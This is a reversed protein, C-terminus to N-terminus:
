WTRRSLPLLRDLLVRYYRNQDLVDAENSDVVICLIDYYQNHTPPALQGYNAHAHASPIILKSLFIFLSISSYLFFKESLKSWANLDSLTIKQQLSFSTSM